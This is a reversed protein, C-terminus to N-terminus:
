EAWLWTLDLGCAAELRTVGVLAAAGKLCAFVTANGQENHNTTQGKCDFTATMDSGIILPFSTGM